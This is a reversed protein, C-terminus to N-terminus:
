RQRHALPRRNRLGTKTCAGGQMENSQTIGCTLLNVFDDETREHVNTTDVKETRIAIYVPTLGNNETKNVDAGYEHLVKIADVRREHAAISESGGWM